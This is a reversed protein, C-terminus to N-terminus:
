ILKDKLNYWYWNPSLVIRTITKNTQEFELRKLGLFHDSNGDTVLDVHYSDEHSFTLSCKASSPLVISAPLAEYSKSRLPSIPTIQYGRLTQYLISGGASLNYATSGAPTSILLGDGAMNILSIGDVSLSFHLTKHDNARVAFENVCLREYTWAETIAKAKILMLKDYSYEGKILHQMNEDLNRYDSEQYFGLTGTNIGLFPISSFNSTHVATLFTGDGGIVLNLVANPDYVYSFEYDKEPFYSILKKIIEESASIPKTFLNIIKKM